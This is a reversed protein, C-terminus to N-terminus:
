KKYLKVRAKKFCMCVTSQARHITINKYQLITIDYSLKGEAGTFLVLAERASKVTFASFFYNSSFFCIWFKFLVFAVQVDPRVEQMGGWAM